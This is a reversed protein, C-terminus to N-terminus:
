QEKLPLTKTKERVAKVTKETDKTKLLKVDHPQHHNEKQKDAEPEQTAQIQIYLNKM